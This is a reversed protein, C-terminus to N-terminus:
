NRRGRGKVPPVAGTRYKRKLRSVKKQYKEGEAIGVPNFMQESGGM